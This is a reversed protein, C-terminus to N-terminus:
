VRELVVLMQSTKAITGRLMDICAFVVNLLSFLPHSPVPRESSVRICKNRSLASLISTTWFPAGQTYQFHRIKLGAKKVIGEFSERNFLVWHRPCHYGGWNRHRFLRADLSDTNPTKIIVIGQPSLLSRAKVLLEKPNHVHEILNLMLIVEVVQDSVYNEFRGCFYKHGRQCAIEGAKEDIDVITTRKIRHDVKKLSSLQLGTGGGIDLVNIQPHPLRSIFQKFFRQDLWDKVKFVLSNTIQEDFSYYNVPYIKNLCDRPVPDIFLASCCNCHYYTFRDNTTYYEEDFAEAWRAADTHGCALCTPM